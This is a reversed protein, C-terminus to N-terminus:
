QMDILQFYYLPEFDTSEDSNFKHVRTTIDLNPIHLNHGLIKRICIEGSREGPILFDTLREAITLRTGNEVRNMLLKNLQLFSLAVIYCGRKSGFRGNCVLFLPPYGTVSPNIIIRAVSIERFYYEKQEYFNQGIDKM